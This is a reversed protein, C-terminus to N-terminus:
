RAAPTIMPGPHETGIVREVVDLPAANRRTRRPAAATGSRGRAAGSAATPWASPSRRGPCPATTAVPRTSATIPMASPSARAGRQEDAERQRQGRGGERQLHELLLALQGRTVAPQRERDQQELVERRDRQDRQHRQEREARASGGMSMLDRPAHSRSCQPAHDHDPAKQQGARDADDGRVPTRSAIVAHASSVTTPTVSTMSAAPSEAASPANM